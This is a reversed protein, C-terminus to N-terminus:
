SGQIPNRHYQFTTYCCHPSSRLSGAKSTRSINTQITTRETPCPGFNRPLNQPTEADAMSRWRSAQRLTDNPLRVSSVCRQYRSLPLLFELKQGASTSTSQPRTGSRTDNRSEMRCDKCEYKAQTVPRGHSSTVLRDTLGSRALRTSSSTPPTKAMQAGGNNKLVSAGYLTRPSGTPTATVCLAMEVLPFRHWCTGNPNGLTDPQEGKSCGESKGGM